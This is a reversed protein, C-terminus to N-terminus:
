RCVRRPRRAAPRRTTTRPRGWTRPDRPRPLGTDAPDVAVPDALRALQLSRAVRRRGGTRVVLRAGRMRCRRHAQALVAVGAAGLFTVQGLHVFLERLGPRRAQSTLCLELVPATSTDVAGVVEVVVRGPRPDPVTRVSLLLREHDPVPRHAPPYPM